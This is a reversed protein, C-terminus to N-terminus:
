IYDFKDEFQYKSEQRTKKKLESDIWGDVYNDCMAEMDQDSLGKFFKQLATSFYNKNDPLEKEKLTVMCGELCTEVSELGPSLLNHATMHGKFSATTEKLDKEMKSQFNSM